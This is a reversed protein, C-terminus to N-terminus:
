CTPAQNSDTAAPARNVIDVSYRDTLPSDEHDLRRLLKTRLAKM